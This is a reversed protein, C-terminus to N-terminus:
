PAEDVDVAGVAFSASRGSAAPAAARQPDVGVSLGHPRRRRPARVAWPPVAGHEFSIRSAAAPDGDTVCVGATASCLGAGRLGARCLGAASRGRTASLCLGAAPQRAPVPDFGVIIFPAVLALGVAAGIGVVVHGHRAEATPATLALTLAVVLALAILRRMPTRRQSFSRWEAVCRPSWAVGRCSASLMRGTKGCGAPGGAMDRLDM